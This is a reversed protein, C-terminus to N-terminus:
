VDINVARFNAMERNEEQINDDAEKNYFYLFNYNFYHQNLQWQRQLITVNM